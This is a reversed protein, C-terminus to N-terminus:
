WMSFELLGGKAEGEVHRAITFIQRWPIASGILLRSPERNARTVNVHALSRTGTRTALWSFCHPYVNSGHMTLCSPPSSESVHPHRPEYALLTRKVRPVPFHCAASSTTHIPCPYPAHLPNCHPGSLCLFVFELTTPHLPLHPCLSPISTLAMAIPSLFRVAADIFRDM